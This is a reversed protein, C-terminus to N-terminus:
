LGPALQMTRGNTDSFGARQAAVSYRDRYSLQTRVRVIWSRVILLAFHVMDAAAATSAIVVNQAVINVEGGLGSAAKCSPMSMTRNDESASGFMALNSSM